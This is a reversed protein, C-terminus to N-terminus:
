RIIQLRQWCKRRDQPADDRDCIGGRIQRLAITASGVGLQQCAIM